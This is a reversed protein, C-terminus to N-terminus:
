TFLLLPLTFSVNLTPREPIEEKVGLWRSRKETIIVATSVEFGLPMYHSSTNPMAWLPWFRRMLHQAKPWFYWLRLWSTLDEKPKEQIFCVPVTLLANFSGSGQTGEGTGATWWAFEEGLLFPRFVTNHGIWSGRAIPGTVWTLFHAGQKCYVGWACRDMKADKTNGLCSWPFSFLASCDAESLRMMSKFLSFSKTYTNLFIGWPSRPFILCWASCHHPKSHIKSFIKCGQAVFSTLM